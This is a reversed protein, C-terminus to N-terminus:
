RCSGTWGQPRVVVPAPGVIAEDPLCESGGPRCAGTWGQPLAHPLAPATDDDGPLCDSGGARCIGTWIRPDLPSAVARHDERYTFQDPVFQGTGGVPSFEAALATPHAPGFALGA